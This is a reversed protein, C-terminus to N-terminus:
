RGTPPDFPRGSLWGIMQPYGDLWYDLTKLSRLERVTLSETSLAALAAKVTEKGHQEALYWPLEEVSLDYNGLVSRLVEALPRGCPPKLFWLMEGAYEQEEFRLTPNGAEQFVRLLGEFVEVPASSRMAAELQRFQQPNRGYTAAVDRIKKVIQEATWVM